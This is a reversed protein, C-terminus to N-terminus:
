ISDILFFEQRCKWIPQPAPIAHITRTALTKRLIMPAVSMSAIMVPKSRQITISNVELRSNRAILYIKYRKYVM